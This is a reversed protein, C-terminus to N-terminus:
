LNIPGDGDGRTLHVNSANREFPHLKQALQQSAAFIFNSPGVLYGNGSFAKGWSRHLQNTVIIDAGHRELHRTAMSVVQDEEGAVALCDVVSGVRMSGFYNHDKM